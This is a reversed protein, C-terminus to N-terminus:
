PLRMFIPIVGKDHLLELLEFGPLAVLFLSADLMTKRIFYPRVTVEAPERWQSFKPIWRPVESCYKQYDEGFKNLLFAEEKAVVQKYYLIYAATLLMLVSFMGSELGLGIVGIFSFVYLPNRVVSFPGDRVVRENKIGGIFASCYTRGLVCIVVCFVGLWDMAEETFGNDSLMGVCFVLVPILLLAFWRSHKQRAKLLKPSPSPATM